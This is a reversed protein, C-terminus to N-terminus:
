ARSRRRRSTAPPRRRAAAPTRPRSRRPRDRGSARHRACGARRRPWRRRRRARRQRELQRVDVRDAPDVSPLARGRGGLAPARRRPAPARRRAEAGRTPLAPADATGVVPDLLGYRLAPAARPEREVARRAHDDPRGDAAPFALLHDRVAPELIVRHRRARSRAPRAQLPLQRRRGLRRPSRRVRRSRAGPLVEASAEQWGPDHHLADLEIHPVGLAAALGRSVTTKGSARAAM